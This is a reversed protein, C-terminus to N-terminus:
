LLQPPREPILIEGFDSAQHEGEGWFHWQIAGGRFGRSDIIYQYYVVDDTSEDLRVIKSDPRGYGPDVIPRQEGPRTYIFYVGESPDGSFPATLYILNGRETVIVRLITARVRVHLRAVTVQVAFTERRRERERETWAQSRGPTAAPSPAATPAPSPAPSPASAEQNFYDDAFYNPAFYNSFYANGPM